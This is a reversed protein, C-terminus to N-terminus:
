HDGKLLSLSNTDMSLELYGLQELKAPSIILEIRNWYGPKLEETFSMEKEQLSKEWEDYEKGQRPLKDNFKKGWKVTLTFGKYIVLSPNGINLILKYGDLCPRADEFSILFIGTSTDVRQYEKTSTDIVISEHEHKITNYQSESNKEDLKILEKLLENGQKISDLDLAFNKNIKKQQIVFYLFYGLTGFILLILCISIITRTKVM